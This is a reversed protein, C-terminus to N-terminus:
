LEQQPLRFWRDLAAVDELLVSERDYEAYGNLRLDLNLPSGDAAFDALAARDFVFWHLSLAVWKNHVEVSDFDHRSQSEIGNITLVVKEPSIVYDEENFGPHEYTGVQLQYSYTSDTVEKCTGLVEISFPQGEPRIHVFDATDSEANDVFYLSQHVAQKPGGCAQLTIALTLLPILGLRTKM